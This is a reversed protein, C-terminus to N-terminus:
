PPLRTRLSSCRPPLQSLTTKTTRSFVRTRRCFMEFVSAAGCCGCCIYRRVSLVARSLPCSFWLLSECLVARCRPIWASCCVVCCARPNRTLGDRGASPAAAPMLKGLAVFM